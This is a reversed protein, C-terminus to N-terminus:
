YNRPGPDNYNLEVGYVELADSSTAGINEIALHYTKTAKDVTVSIGGSDLTDATTLAVATDLSTVVGSGAGAFNPTSVHLRLAVNSTGLAGVRARISSIVAGTPLYPGLDIVGQAIGGGDFGGGIRALAPSTSTQFKALVEAYFETGGVAGIGGSLATPDICVTRSRSSPTGSVGTYLVECTQTDRLCPGFSGNWVHAQTWVWLTGLFQADTSLGDVYAIWSYVLNAWWNLWRAPLSNGPIWGQAKVGASPELKVSSGSEAGSSFNTDTAWSPLTVPKAM